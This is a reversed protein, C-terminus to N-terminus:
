KHKTWEKGDSPRTYTGAGGNATNAYKDALDGPFADITKDRDDVSIEIDEGTYSREFTVSILRDCNNFAGYGIKNISGPITIRNLHVSGHFAGYIFTVPYDELMVSPVELSEANGIYGIITIEKEKEINLKKFLEIEENKSKAVKSTPLCSVTTLIMILTLLSIIAKQMVVLKEWFVM